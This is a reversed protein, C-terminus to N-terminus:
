IVSEGLTLKALMVEIPEIVEIEEESLSYWWLDIEDGVADYEKNEEETWSEDQRGEKRLKAGLMALKCSYFLYGAIRESSSLHSKNNNM